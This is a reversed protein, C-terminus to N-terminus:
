LSHVRVVIAVAIITALLLVANKVWFSLKHIEEPFVLMIRVTLGLIFVVSMLIVFVVYLIAEM